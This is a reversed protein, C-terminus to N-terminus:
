SGVNGGEREFAAAIAQVVEAITLDTTDLILSGTASRLPSDARSSDLHDRRELEEAVRDIEVRDIETAEGEAMDRESARRQARALPSATLFVKLQADPFVVTGIDRGEVVGGGNATMWERQLNRMVTRVPSVAAVVSVAENVAAARIARTVDVGDVEVQGDRGLEIAIGAALTALAEHDALEVGRDLAAWTVARYMAGTDLYAKGLSAALLKAVTSKGSGAPGDIAVVGRGSVMSDRRLEEIVEFFRPFTKNVVAPDAIEIGGARLGAVTFSMAMRHDHYTEVVAPSVTSPRVIWGDLLEDADVGLRRLETVVSGIRDTEKARIFDIGTAVTPGDAFPAIAALTPATDSINGLDVEIGSLSGSGRVEISTPTRVVEAGMSELVDVFGVDGQLSDSGLGDVRVWGGCVAAAAFFYSAASADPEVAFNTARYGGPEIRWASASTATVTAGFARMVAITMEVYPRSQLEGGVVVSLGHDLVPGVMLLGSLFQSSAGADIRVDPGWERSGAITIPLSGGTDDIGVGAARIANIGDAMPRARLPSAGDIVTPGSGLAAVAMLFRSTTGSLRADITTASTAVRGASGVITACDGEAEITAGLQRLGDIMAATDDARLVGTLESTGTALAACVLARNTISKSGPLSVVAGLTGIIPEIRM